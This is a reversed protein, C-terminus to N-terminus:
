LGLLDAYSVAIHDPGSLQLAAHLQDLRVASAAEDTKSALVAELEVFSGLGAVRDLHIRVNHWLHIERHKCVKGRIGLAAALASRIPDADAVPVLYYTSPRVDERDPRDYWILTASSGDIERLKLRGLPVRFYTDRQEEIVTFRAGLQTVAERASDLDALRAKVELNRRLHVTM